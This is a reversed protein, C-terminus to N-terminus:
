NMVAQTISSQYASSTEVKRLVERLAMTAYASTPLSFSIICAVKADAKKEDEVELTEVNPPNTETDKYLPM